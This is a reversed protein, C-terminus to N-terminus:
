ELQAIKLNTNTGHVSQYKDESGRYMDNPNPLYGNGKM